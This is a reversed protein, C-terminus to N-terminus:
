GPINITKFMSFIRQSAEAPSVVLWGNDVLTLYLTDALFLRMGENFYMIVNRCFVIDMPPFVKYLPKNIDAINFVQFDVCERIQQNIKFHNDETKEFYLEMLWKPANRFSWKKYIGMKAKQISDENIDLGIIRAKIYPMYRQITIAISYPEEGTSCGVSMININDIGKNKIVDPLIVDKLGTFIDPDRYFYTEGITLHKIIVNRETDTLQNSIIRAVLDEPNKIMLHKCISQLALQLENLRTETFFIGFSRSIADNLQTLIEVKM